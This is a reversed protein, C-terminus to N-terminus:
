STEKLVFYIYVYGIVLFTYEYFANQEFFNKWNM